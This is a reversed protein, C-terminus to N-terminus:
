QGVAHLPKGSDSPWLERLILTEPDAEDPQWESINLLKIRQDQRALMAVFPLRDLLASHIFTQDIGPVARRVSMGFATRLRLAETAGRFVWLCLPASDSTVAHWMATTEDFRLEDLALAPPQQELASEIQAAFDGPDQDSDGPIAAIGPSESWSGPSKAACISLASSCCGGANASSSSRKSSVVAIHCATVLSLAGSQKHTKLPAVSASRRRVANPIDTRRATGPISWVKM